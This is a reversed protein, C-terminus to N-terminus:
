KVRFAVLDTRYPHEVSGGRGDIAEAIAAHLEARQREPLMRHNSHTALLAIYAETTYREQWTVQRTVPEEFMGSERLSAFQAQVGADQQSAIKEHTMEPTIRGYIPQLEDHWECDDLAGANWFLMLWGGSRLLSHAKNPGQTPDVWHWSQAATIVAYHHEPLDCDEFNSLHVSVRPYRSRLVAAMEPSPEVATVDFGREVLSETAKGTGAGVDLVPDGPGIESLEVIVDYLESPYTPRARQYDDAVEGFVLRQERESV